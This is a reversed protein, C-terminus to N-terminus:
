EFIYEHRAVLTGVRECAPADDLVANPRALNPIRLHGPAILPPEDPADAAIEGQRQDVDHQHRPREEHQQRHPEVAVDGGLVLRSQEREERHDDQHVQARVERPAEVALDPLVGAHRLGPADHEGAGRGAREDEEDVRRPGERHRARHRQEASEDGRHDHARGAELAAQAPSGARGRRVGRGGGADGDDPGAVGSRRDHALHAALGLGVPHRDGDDVVIRALLAARHETHRDDAVDGVQGLDHLVELRVLHEDGDGAGVLLEDVLDHVAGLQRAHRELHQRRDAVQEIVARRHAVGAVDVDLVEETAGLDGGVDLLDPRHDAAGRHEDGAGAPRDARLDGLLHGVEAGPAQHQEIVVLGVEVVDVALQARRRLEVEGVDAVPAADGVEHAFQPGVDHEVGSRVLM